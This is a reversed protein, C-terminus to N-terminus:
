RSTLKISAATSCSEANCLNLIYNRFLTDVNRSFLKEKLPPTQPTSPPFFQRTTSIKNKITHPKISRMFPYAFDGFIILACITYLENILLTTDLIQFRPHSRLSYFAFRTYTLTNLFCTTSNNEDTHFGSTYM